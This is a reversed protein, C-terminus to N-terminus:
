AVVYSASWDCRPRVCTTHLLLYDQFRGASDFPVRAIFRPCMFTIKSHHMHINTTSKPIPIIIIMIIIIVIITKNQKTKNQKNQKTRNTRRTNNKNKGVRHFFVMITCTKPVFFRHQPGFYGFIRTVASVNLDYAEKQTALLRWIDPPPLLYKLFTGCMSNNSNYNILTSWHYRRCRGVFDGTGARPTQAM